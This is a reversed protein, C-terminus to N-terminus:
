LLLTIYYVIISGYAPDTKDTIHRVNLAVSDGIQIENFNIPAFHTIDNQEDFGTIRSLELISGDEKTPLQLPLTLLTDTGNEVDAIKLTITGQQKGQQTLNINEIRGKVGGVWDINSDLKNFLPTQQASAEHQTSTSTSQEKDVVQYYNGVFYATIAVGAILVFLYLAHFHKKNKM